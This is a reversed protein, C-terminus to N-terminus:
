PLLRVRNVSFVFSVHAKMWASFRLTKGRRFAIIGDDAYKRLTNPHLGIAEVAEKLKLYSMHAITLSYVIQERCVTTM